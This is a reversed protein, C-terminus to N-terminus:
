PVALGAIVPCSGPAPNIGTDGRRECILEDAAFVRRRLLVDLVEMQGIPLGNWRRRSARIKLISKLRPWRARQREGRSSPCTAM